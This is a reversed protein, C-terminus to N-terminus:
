KNNKEKNNKRICKTCIGYVYVSAYHMHFRAYRRNKLTNALLPDKFAKISGCQLCVLHHYNGGGIINEYYTIDNFQHKRVIGSDVLIDMTNYVTAKSVHYSELDLSEYLMETSFQNAFNVVKGLIAFREPTCRMGKDKLYQTLTDRAMLKIKDDNM